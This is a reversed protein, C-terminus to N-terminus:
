EQPAPAHEPKTTSDPSKSTTKARRRPSSPIADLKMSRLKNTEAESKSFLRKMSKGTRLEQNKELRAKNTARQKELTAPDIKAFAGIPCAVGIAILVMALIPNKM